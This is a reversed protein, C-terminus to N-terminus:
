KKEAKAQNLTLVKLSDEDKFGLMNSKELHIYKISPMLFKVSVYYFKLPRFSRWICRLSSSNCCLSRFTVIACHIAGLMVTSGM